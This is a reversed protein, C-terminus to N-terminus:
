SSGRGAAALVEDAVDAAADPRALAASAKAMAALRQRDGLLTGVERALRPGDLAVDDIIVAAGADAMWRANANQHDAAAHPYPVLIAPRGHAAVEFISGGARAVVLDSAALAQRFEAIPLYERLDYRPGVPRDRLDGYDREGAIHLM